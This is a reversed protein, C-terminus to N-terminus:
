ESEQWGSVPMQVTCPGPCFDLTEVRVSVRALSLIRRLFANTQGFLAAQVVGLTLQALLTRGAKEAVRGNAGWLVALGTGARM